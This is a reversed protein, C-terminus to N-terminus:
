ETPIEKVRGELDNGIMALLVGGKNFVIGNTEHLFRLTSSNAWTFGHSFTKAWKADIRKLSFTKLGTNIFKTPVLNLIKLM